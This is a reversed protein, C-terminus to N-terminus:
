RVAFSKPNLLITACPIHTTEVLKATVANFSLFVVFLSCKSCCFESPMKDRFTDKLRGTNALEIMWETIDSCDDM